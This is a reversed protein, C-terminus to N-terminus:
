KEALRDLLTFAMAFVNIKFIKDREKTGAVLINHFSERLSMTGLGLIADSNTSVITPYLYWIELTLNTCKLKLAMDDKSSAAGLTTHILDSELLIKRTADRNIKNFQPLCEHMTEYVMFVDDKFTEM